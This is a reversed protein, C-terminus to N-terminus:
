NQCKTNAQLRSPECDRKANASLLNRLPDAATLYIIEELAESGILRLYAMRSIIAEALNIPIRM